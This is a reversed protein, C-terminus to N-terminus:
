KVLLTLLKKEEETLNKVGKDMVRNLMEDREKQSMKEVDSASLTKEISSKRSEKVKPATTSQNTRTNSTLEIARILEASKLDLDTANITKLFGFLGNHIEKKLINFGSSKPDLDFLLFNRKNLRFWDTLENPEVSSCFTAILIGKADLVNPATESIKEIETFVGKTEGMIVICYNRFKM